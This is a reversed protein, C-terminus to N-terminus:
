SRKLSFKSSETGGNVYLVVVQSKLINM